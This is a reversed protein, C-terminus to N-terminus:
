ANRAKVAAVLEDLARQDEEWCDPYSPPPPVDDEDWCSDYLEGLEEPAPRSDDDGYSEEPEIWQCPGTGWHFIAYRPRLIETPLSDAAEFPAALDHDEGWGNNWPGHGFGFHRLGPLGTQLARFHDHWRTAYSWTTVDGNWSLSWNPDLVCYREPNTAQSIMADHVIPCDDLTLSELTEGHSIIWQVQWDHTFTMNGLALSKLQPFHLSRFDCKPLYGWYCLSYLKLHVLNHQTPKLWYELLDNGFFKHREFIAIENEPSAPHEETAIALELSRLRSLVTKFDDSEVIDEYTIDQLNCISLSNLKDAPHEPHNLASVVHKLFAVRYEKWEREHGSDDHDGGKTEYDHKLELRRLNGFLGVDDVMAKLVPNLDNACQSWVEVDDGYKPDSKRWAPIDRSPTLRYDLGPLSAQISITTVLPQFRDDELVARTKRASAATPLLHLRSFLRKNVLPTFRRCTLRLAKAAFIDAQDCCLSLLENPLDLLQM